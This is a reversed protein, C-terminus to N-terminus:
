VEEDPDFNKLQMSYAYRQSNASPMWLFAVAMLIVVYIV